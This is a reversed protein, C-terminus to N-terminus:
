EWGVEEAAPVTAAAHAFSATLVTCCEVTGKPRGDRGYPQVGDGDVKAYDGRTTDFGRPAVFVETLPEAAGEVSRVHAVVGGRGLLEDLRPLDCDGSEAVDAGM